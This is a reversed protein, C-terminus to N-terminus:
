PLAERAALLQSSPPCLAVARQLAGSDGRVLSYPDWPTNAAYADAFAASSPLPPTALGAARLCPVLRARADDFRWALEVPGAPLSRPSDVVGYQATCSEIAWRSRDYREGVMGFYSVTVRDDVRDARIRPDAADICAAVADAWVDRAVVGQFQPVPVGLDLIRAASSAVFADFKEREAAELAARREAVVDDLTPADPAPPTCGTTVLVVLGATAVRVVWGSRTM